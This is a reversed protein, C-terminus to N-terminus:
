LAMRDRGSRSNRAVEPSVIRREEAGMMHVFLALIVLVGTLDVAFLTSSYDCLASTTPDLSGYGLEVNNLLYPVIAVMLLLTVNLFTVVRTEQPLVSMESTYILWATILILFSFVFALIHSSIEGADTPSSAILAISGRSLSLGFILDALSEM